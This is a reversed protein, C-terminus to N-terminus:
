NWTAGLSQILQANRFYIQFKGEVYGEARVWCNELRWEEGEDSILEITCPSNALFSEYFESSCTILLPPWSHAGPIYSGLKNPSMVHWKEFEIKPKTVEGVEGVFEANGKYASQVKIKWM